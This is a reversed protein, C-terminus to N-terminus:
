YGRGRPYPDIDFVLTVVSHDFCVGTLINSSQCSGILSGVSVLIYHLRSLVKPNHQHRTYQQLNPHYNRWIDILNFEDM